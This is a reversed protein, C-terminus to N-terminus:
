RNSAENTACPASRENKTYSPAHTRSNAGTEHREEESTARKGRTSHSNSSVKPFLDFNGTSTRIGISALHFLQTRMMLFM